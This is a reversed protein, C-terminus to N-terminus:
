LVKHLYSYDFFNEVSQVPNAPDILTRLLDHQQNEVSHLFTYLKEVRANTAEDNDPDDPNESNDGKKGTVAHSTAAVSPEEFRNERKASVKRLKVERRLPGVMTDMTPTCNFLMRAEMGFRKWNFVNNNDEATRYNNKITTSLDFVNFRGSIDSLVMAQSHIISSITNLQPAELQMDRVKTIKVGNEDVKEIISLIDAGKLTASKSAYSHVEETLVRTSRRIESRNDETDM